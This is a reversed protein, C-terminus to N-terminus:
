CGRLAQEVEWRDLGVDKLIQDDAGLLQRYQHRARRRAAADRLAAAVRDIARRPFTATMGFDAAITM